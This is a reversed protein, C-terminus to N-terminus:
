KIRRGKIPTKATPSPVYGEGLEEPKAEPEKVVTEEPASKANPYFGYDWQGEWVYDPFNEALDRDGLLGLTLIDAM